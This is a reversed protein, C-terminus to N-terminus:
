TPARLTSTGIDKREGNAPTEALSSSSSKPDGDALNSKESKKANNKKLESNGNENFLSTAPESQETVRARIWAFGQTSPGQFQEGIYDWNRPNYAPRKWKKQLLHSPINTINGTRCCWKWSRSGQSLLNRPEQGRMFISQNGLGLLSGSHQNSGMM